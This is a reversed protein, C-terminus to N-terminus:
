ADPKGEVFNFIHQFEDERCPLTDPVAAVHLRRRIEALPSTPSALQCSRAALSPTMKLRKKSASAGNGSPTSSGARKTTRKSPTM